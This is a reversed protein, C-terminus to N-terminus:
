KAFLWDGAEGELRFTDALCFDTSGDGVYAVRYGRQKWQRWVAPKCGACPQRFRRCEPLASDLFGLVPRGDADFRMQNASYPVPLGRRHLVSEVYYDFGASLVHCEWGRAEALRVLRETGPSVTVRELFADIEKRTFGLADYELEYCRVQSIEGNLWLAEVQAWREPITERCMTDTVDVNTITGDFDCLIATSM